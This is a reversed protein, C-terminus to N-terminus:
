TQWCARWRIQPCGGPMRVNGAAIKELAANETRELGYLRSHDSLGSTLDITKDPNIKGARKGSLDSLVAWLSYRQIRVMTWQYPANM